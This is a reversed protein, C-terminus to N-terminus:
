DMMPLAKALHDAAELWSQRCRLFIDAVQRRIAPDRLKQDMESAPLQNEPNGGTLKCAQAMGDSIASFHDRAVSLEERSNPFVAIARDIFFRAYDVREWLDWTAPVILARLRAELSGAPQNVDTTPTPGDSLIAEAWVDFSAPGAHFPGFRSPRMIRAAQKLADRIATRESPGKKRGTLLVVLDADRAWDRATVRKGPEFRVDAAGGRSVWGALVDGGEEYGTVLLFDGAKPVGAVIAPWRRDALCEVVRLKLANGDLSGRGRATLGPGVLTECAYGAAALARRFPTGPDPWYLTPDLSPKQGSRPFWFFSFAEGTLGMFFVQPRSVRLGEQNPLDWRLGLDDGLLDMAASLVGAEPMDQPYRPGQFRAADPLPLSYSRPWEAGSRHQNATMTPMGEAVPYAGVAIAATLVMAAWPLQIMQHM